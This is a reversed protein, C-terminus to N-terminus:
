PEALITNESAGSDSLYDLDLADSQVYDRASVEDLTILMATPTGFRGSAPIKALCTKVLQVKTANPTETENHIFWFHLEVKKADWAPAARVRIEDLSRLFEGEPTNKSHKDRLRKALPNVWRVFDDPFAFRQRKRVLAKTIARGEADTSWGPVRVWKAIVAKEVTMTRDLDAVVRKGALGPIYGFNPRLGKAIEDFREGGEVLPAVEVFPRDMCRRVIDCTQSTVVFGLVEAEVLDVDDDIAAAAATLPTTPDFRYAIFYEGLVCDGQRWLAIEDDVTKAQADSSLEAM